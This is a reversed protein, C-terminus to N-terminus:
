TSKPTLKGRQMADSFPACITAPAGTDAHTLARGSQSTYSTMTGSTSVALAVDRSGAAVTLNKITFDFEMVSYQDCVPEFSTSM